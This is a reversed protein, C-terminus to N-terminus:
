ENNTRGDRVFLRIGQDLLHLADGVSGARLEDLGLIPAALFQSVFDPTLSFARVHVEIELRRVIRDTLQLVGVTKFVIDNLEEGDVEFLFQHRTASRFRRRLLKDTAPNLLTMRIPFRVRLGSSRYVGLPVGTADRPNATLRRYLCPSSRFSSTQKTSMTTNPLCASCQPWYRLLPFPMM